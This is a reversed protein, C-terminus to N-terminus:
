GQEFCYLVYQNSCLDSGLNTWRQENLYTGGYRGQEGGSSNTWDDCNRIVIDEQDYAYGTWMTYTWAHFSPAPGGSETVDILARLIPDGQPIPRVLDAWSTAVVAGDVRVYPGTNRLNTFRRAPSSEISTNSIWAKYRGGRTLPSADALQQCKADAGAVGGLDGTFTESTVFVRCVGKRGCAKPLCTGEVCVEDAPCGGCCADKSICRNRCRKQGPRCRCRHKNCVQNNPCDANHCCKNKAVCRNGCRRTRKPCRCIGEQCTAGRCCELGRDPFCPKGIPRCVRPPKQASAPDTRVVAGVVATFLGALTSRRSSAVAFVRSLRDFSSSKM